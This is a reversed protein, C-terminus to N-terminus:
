VPIGTPIELVSSPPSLPALRQFKRINIWHQWTLVIAILSLASFNQSIWILFSRLLHIALFCLQCTQLYIFLCPDDFTHNQNWQIAKLAYPYFSFVTLISLFRLGTDQPEMVMNMSSPTQVVYFCVHIARLILLMLLCMRDVRIYLSNGNIYHNITSNSYYYMIIVNIVLEFIAILWNGINPPCCPFRSQYLIGGVYIIGYLALFLGSIWIEFNNNELFLNGKIIQHTITEEIYDLMLIGIPKEQQSISAFLQSQMELSVNYASCSLYHVSYSDLVNPVQNPDCIVTQFPILKVAFSSNWLIAIKGRIEKIPIQMSWVQYLLPHNFSSIFFQFHALTSVRPSLILFLGESPYQILFSEMMTLVELLTCPNWDSISTDNQDAFIYVAGDFVRVGAYLQEELTLNQSNSSLITGVSTHTGPLLLSDVLQEDNLRDMWTQYPFLDLKALTTDTLVSLLLLLWM